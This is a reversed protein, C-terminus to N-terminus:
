ATLGSRGGRGATWARAWTDANPASAPRRDGGGGIREVALAVLLGLAAETALAAGLDSLDVERATEALRDPVHERTLFGEGRCAGNATQSGSLWKEFQAAPALGSM